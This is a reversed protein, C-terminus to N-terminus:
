RHFRVRVRVNNIGIGLMRGDQAAFAHDVHIRVVVPSSRTQIPVADRQPAQAAAFTVQKVPGGADIQATMGAQAAFWQLELTMDDSLKPVPITLV